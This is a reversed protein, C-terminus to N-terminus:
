RYKLLETFNKGTGWYNGILVFKKQYERRHGDIRGVECLNITPSGNVEDSMCFHNNAFFSVPIHGNGDAIIHELEEKLEEVTM